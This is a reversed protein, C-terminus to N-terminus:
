VGSEVGAQTYETWTSLYSELQVRLLQLSTVPGPSLRHTERRLRWVQRIPATSQDRRLCFLLPFFFFFSFLFIRHLRALPFASQPVGPWYCRRYWRHFSWQLGLGNQVGYRAATRRSALGPQDERGGKEKGKGRFLGGEENKQWGMAGRKANSLM